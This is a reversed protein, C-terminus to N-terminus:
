RCAHQEGLQVPCPHAASWLGLEPGRTGGQGAVTQLRLM